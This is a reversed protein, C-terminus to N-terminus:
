YSLNYQIGLTGYFSQSFLEPGIYDTVPRGGGLSQVTVFRDWSISAFAEFKGLSPRRSRLHIEARLGVGELTMPDHDTSQVGFPVVRMATFPAFGFFLRMRRTPVYLAGVVLSLRKPASQLYDPTSLSLSGDFIVSVGWKGLVPVYGFEMGLAPGFSGVSYLPVGIQTPSFQPISASGVELGLRFGIFRGPWTAYHRRQATPVKDRIEQEWLEDESPPRPSASAEPTVEPLPEPQAKDTLEPIPPVIGEPQPTVQDTQGQIGELPVQEPMPADNLTADQARVPM